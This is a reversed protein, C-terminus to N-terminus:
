KLVGAERYFREAGPHMPISAASLAHAPDIWAGIAQTSQGTKLKQQMGRSWLIGTLKQIQDEAVDATTILQAGFALTTVDENFGTYTGAPITIEYLFPFRKILNKSAAGTLSLLSIPVAQALNDISGFGPTTISVFADIEGDLLAEEADFQAMHLARYSQPGLGFVQLIGKANQAQLSGERGLVVLKGALEEVSGIDPAAVVHVAYPYLNAVFRISRFPKERWEDLGAYAYSALDSQVIGTQLRNDDLGQLIAATGSETCAAAVFAKPPFRCSNCACNGAEEPSTMEQSLREAIPFNTLTSGAGIRFIDDAQAPMTVTLLGLVLTALLRLPRFM